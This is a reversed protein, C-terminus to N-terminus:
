GPRLRHEHLRDFLRQCEALMSDLRAPPAAPPTIEPAFGTSKEVNEYWYKAWVGDTERRGPAWNLMAETYPVEVRECLLKLMAPPDRLLDGALIVPPATGEASRLMEFLEVQQPLGTDPLTPQPMVKALSAVMQRPERILLCNTLKLVWDRDMGPLLHHAMHKQFWIPKGGPIPGLLTEVVRRWDCEGAAIVEELGPHDVRTVLCYHAYLPEDSVFTDPRSGWSRMLATSINRPGSWMAVRTEPM